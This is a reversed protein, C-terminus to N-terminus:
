APTSRKEEISFRIVTGDDTNVREFAVYLPNTKHNHKPDLLFLIRLLQNQTTADADVFAEHAQTLRLLQIFDGKRRRHGHYYNNVLLDAAPYNGELILRLAVDLITLYSNTVRM